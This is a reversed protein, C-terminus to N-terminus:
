VDRTQAALADQLCEMAFAKGGAQRLEDFAWQVTLAQFEDDDLAMASAYARVFREADNPEELLRSGVEM